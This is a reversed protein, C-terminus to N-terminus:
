IMKIAINVTNSNKNTTSYNNKIQIQGKYYLLPYTHYTHYLKYIKTITHLALNVAKNITINKDKSKHHQWKM